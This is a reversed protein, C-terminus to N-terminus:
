LLRVVALFTKTLQFVESVFIPGSECIYMPTTNQKLSVLLCLDNSQILSTGIMLTFDFANKRSHILSYKKLVTCTNTMKEKSNSGQKPIISIKLLVRIFYKTLILM